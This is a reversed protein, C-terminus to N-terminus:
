GGSGRTETQEIELKGPLDITITKITAHTHETARLQNVIRQVIEWAYFRETEIRIADPWYVKGERYEKDGDVRFVHQSM